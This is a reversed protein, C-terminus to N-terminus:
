YYLRRHIKKTILRPTVFTVVFLQLYRLLQIVIRPQSIKCVFKVCTSWRVQGCAIWQRQLVFTWLNLRSFIVFLTGFASANTLAKYTKM